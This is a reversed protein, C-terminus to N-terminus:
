AAERQEFYNIQTPVFMSASPIDIEHSGLYHQPSLRAGVFEILADEPVWKLFRDLNGHKELHLRINAILGVEFRRQCDALSDGCAAYDIEIGQAAWGRGERKILVRLATLTVGNQDVECQFNTM